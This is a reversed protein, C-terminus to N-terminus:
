VLVQILPWEEAPQDHEARYAAMVSAVTADIKHGGQKLKRVRWGRDTLEAATARVHANLVPDNPHEIRTSTVAEFFLQYADSMPKSAQELAVLTMGEDSLMQASREFFRPDFV